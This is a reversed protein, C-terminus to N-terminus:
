LPDEREVSSSDSTTSDSRAGTADGEPRVERFISELRAANELTEDLKFILEPVRRLSIEDALCRRIFTKASDLAARAEEPEGLTRYYVRAVGVDPSPKVESISVHELRPDSVRQQLISSLRVRLEQAIRERSHKM